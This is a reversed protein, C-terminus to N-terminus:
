INRGAEVVPKSIGGPGKGHPQEQSLLYKTIQDRLSVLRVGNGDKTHCLFVPRDIMKAEWRFPHKAGLERRQNDLDEVVGVQLECEVAHSMDEIASRSHPPADTTTDHM